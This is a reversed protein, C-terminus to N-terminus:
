LLGGPLQGQLEPCYVLTGSDICPLYIILIGTSVTIAWRACHNVVYDTASGAVWKTLMGKKGASM